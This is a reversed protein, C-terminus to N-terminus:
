TGGAKAATVRDVILVGLRQRCVSALVDVDVAAAREMVTLAM